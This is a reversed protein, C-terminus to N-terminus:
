TLSRLSEKIGSQWEAMTLEKFSTTGVAGAALVVDPELTRLIEISRKLDSKNSEGPVYGGALAGHNLYITDGTFLYAKGHPSKYFYCASGPTHGPAPIVEIAGLHMERDQFTIDAAIGSKERISSEELSHCCLKAGFMQKIRAISPSVEHSHALYQRVIGGLKRIQHLEDMDAMPGIAERGVNYFLINGEGRLLLYANSIAEPLEAMIHETVSQWLDAYLRRM